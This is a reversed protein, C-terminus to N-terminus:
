QRYITFAQADDSWEAKSRNLRQLVGLYDSGAPDYASKPAPTRTAIVRITEASASTKEDPMQAVLSVGRKKLAEDPYEWVQGEKLRVGPVGENPILLSTEGNMGVDYLYIACDRNATVTLKAESGAIFHSQSIGLQVHFDRDADPPIPMICTRLKVFYRCAKCEALDQYREDDVAEKLIRGLRTTQLMSEILNTQGRLGEQQFDLTRSRIDVGLFDQMASRRAEDVAAARIQARTDQEGVTVTAESAIWTCGVPDTGRIDAKRPMSEPAASLTPPEQSAEARRRVAEFDPKPGQDKLPAHRCASLILCLLVSARRIPLRMVPQNYQNKM